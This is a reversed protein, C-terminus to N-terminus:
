DKAHANPLLVWLELPSQLEGAYALAEEGYGLFLDARVEGKIAGGTDQAMVVQSLQKEGVEANLYLMSGLPIYHRDVAVSRWPTLVVGLSGTASQEKQAFFVMSENHNLVEAVKDPNELLYAKISQLSIDEKKIAGSEILYKGISRYKHGNQNAYGIFLVEGNELVVRGSGQVELFFLDILSDTYCLIEPELEKNQFLERTEYPVITNGQLKGRLRYHALEPYISALDVVVLDKPTAYIPYKYLESKELSGRLEPEYYGTLLPKSKKAIVKHPIFNQELFSKPDSALSAKECLEEYINQVKQSVCSNKFYELVEFYNENEWKPLEKFSSAKLSTNQFQQYLNPALEIKSTSCGTFFLFFILFLYFIKM